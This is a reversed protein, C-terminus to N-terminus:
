TEIWIWDTRIFVAGRLVDGALQRTMGNWVSVVIRWLFTSVYISYKTNDGVLLSRSLMRQPREAMFRYYAHRCLSFYPIIILCPRDPAQCMCNTIWLIAPFSTIFGQEGKDIFTNRSDIDSTGKLPLYRIDQLINYHQLFPPEAFDAKM